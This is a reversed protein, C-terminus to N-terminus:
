FRHYQDLVRSRSMDIYDDEWPPPARVEADEFANYSSRPPFSIQWESAWEVVGM